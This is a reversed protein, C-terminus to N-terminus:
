KADIEIIRKRLRHSELGNIKHLLLVGPAINETSGCLALITNIHYLYSLPAGSDYKVAGVRGLSYFYFDDIQFKHM